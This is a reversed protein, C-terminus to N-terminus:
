IATNVRPDSETDVCRVPKGERVCQAGIGSKLNLPTGVPPAHEGCSVKCVVAGEMAYAIAIGSAGLSDMVLRAMETLIGGETLFALALGSSSNVQAEPTDTDVAGGPNQAAQSASDEDSLSASALLSM